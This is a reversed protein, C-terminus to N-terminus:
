QNKIEKLVDFHYNHGLLKKEEILNKLPDIQLSQVPQDLEVGKEEKQDNFNDEDNSSDSSESPNHLDFEYEDNPPIDGDSDDDPKGESINDDTNDPDDNEIPRIPDLNKTYNDNQTM